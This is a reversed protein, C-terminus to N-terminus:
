KMIVKKGNIINLGQKPSDLRNGRLDYYVNNENNGNSKINEMGTSDFGQLYWFDKWVDAAQYAELAEQPVYVNVTM